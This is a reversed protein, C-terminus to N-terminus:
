VIQRIRKGRKYLVGAEGHEKIYHYKTLGTEKLLEQWGFYTKGDLIIETIFRNRYVETQWMDKIKSSIVSSNKKKYDMQKKRYEPDQWKERIQRSKIEKNKQSIRKRKDLGEQTLYFKKLSESKKKKQQESNKVSIFGKNAISQNFYEDSRVGLDEQLIKEQEILYKTTIEYPFVKLVEFMFDNPASLVKEKWWDKLTKGETWDFSRLSSVSGYYGEKYRYKSGIYYKPKNTGLHPIYTVKYLIHM